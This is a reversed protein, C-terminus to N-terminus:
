VSDIFEKNYVVTKNTLINCVHSFLEINIDKKDVREKELQIIFDKLADIFNGATYLDM